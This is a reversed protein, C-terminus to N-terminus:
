KMIDKTRKIVELKFKGDNGNFLLPLMHSLLQEATVVREIGNTTQIWKNKVKHFTQVFGKDSAIKIICEENKM